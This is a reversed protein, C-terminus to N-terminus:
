LNCAKVITVKGIEATNDLQYAGKMMLDFNIQRNDISTKQMTNEDLLKYEDISYSIKANPTGLANTVMQNGGSFITIEHRFTKGDIPKTTYSANNATEKILKGQAAMNWGVKFRSSFLQYTGGNLTCPLGSVQWKKSSIYKLLEDKTRTETIVKEDEAKRAAQSKEEPTEEAVISCDVTNNLKEVSYADKKGTVRNLVTRSSMSPYKKAIEPYNIEILEKNKDLFKFEKIIPKDSFNTKIKATRQEDNFTYDEFGFKNSCSYKTPVSKVSSLSLPSDDKKIQKKASAENPIQNDIEAAREAKRQEEIKALRQKEKEAAEDAKRQKEAAAEAKRQEEIKALRQKEKEAAEDAKRQKELEAVRAQVQREVEAAAEAKRQEEIKALRQKEKEAALRAQLQKEVEIDILRQKEIEISSVVSMFQQASIINIKNGGVIQFESNLGFREEYGKGSSCNFNYTEGESELKNFINKDIKGLTLYVKKDKREFLEFDKAKIFSKKAFETVSDRDSVYGISIYCQGKPARKDALIEPIFFLFTVLLLINKKMLFLYIKYFCM